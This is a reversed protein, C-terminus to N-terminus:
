TQGTEAALIARLGERYTPYALEVKLENKIRSNDILRNDNWFSLAMESMDVSADEFSVEPPPEIGLLKCAFATVDAPPAAENDCLNYVAGPNPRNISARIATAIDNVHIRSFKHGPKVIQRAKGAQVTDLASRGPGYIGSLRYVHVPLGDRNFRNLWDQEAKLRRQSRESSPVLEATEDVMRGQTDGYVGTTSLYGVWELMKFNGLDGAHCHLVPDGQRPAPPVSILLHTVNRFIEESRELPNDGDFLHASIGEASLHRVTEAERCTGGVTWGADKLQRAIVKGSFGLGFCFFTGRAVM